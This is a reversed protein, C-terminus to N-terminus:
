IRDHAVEEVIMEIGDYGEEPYVKFKRGDCVVLTTYMGDNEHRIRCDKGNVFEMFEYYDM